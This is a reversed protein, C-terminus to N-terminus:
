GFSRKPERTLAESIVRRKRTGGTSRREFRWDAVRLIPGFNECYSFAFAPPLPPIRVWPPNGWARNRTSHRLGSEAVRGFPLVPKSSPRYAILGVFRSCIRNPRAPCAGINLAFIAARARRHTEGRGNIQNKQGDNPRKVPVQASPFLVDQNDTRAENKVAPPTPAEERQEDGGRSDIVRHRQRHAVLRVPGMASLPQQNRQDAIETHKSEKLIEVEEGRLQRMQQGRESQFGIRNKQAYNQRKSNREVSKLRETVRDINVAPPQLRHAVHHLIKTKVREKRVQDGTRNIEGLVQQLLELVIAMEIPIFRGIARSLHQEAIELLHDNGVIKRRVHVIGEAVDSM